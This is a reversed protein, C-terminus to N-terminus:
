KKNFYSSLLVNTNFSQGGGYAAPSNDTLLIKGNPMLVSDRYSNSPFIASSLELSDYVPDYIQATTKNLPILLIKGNPLLACGSIGSDPSTSSSVLVDADPYYIRIYSNPSSNGVLVIRGDSLITGKWPGASPMTGNPITVTNTFPNYIRASGAGYPICYVNGNKMLIGESLAVDYTGNPTTLTNTFPNYIRATNTSSGAPVCFVRGDSLLVAGVFTGTFTGSPTTTFSSFPQYIKASGSSLPVLYIRGDHMLAGGGFLQTFKDATVLTQIALQNTNVNYHIANQPVSTTGFPILFVYYDGNFTQHLIGGDGYNANPDSIPTINTITDSVTATATTSNISNEYLSWYASGTLRWDFLKSSSSLFNRAAFMKYLFFNVLLLALGAQGM